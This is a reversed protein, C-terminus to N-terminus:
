KRRRKRNTPKCDKCLGANKAFMSVPLKRGCKNCVKTKITVEEVEAEGESWATCGVRLWGVYKPNVSCPTELQGQQYHFCNGCIKSTM